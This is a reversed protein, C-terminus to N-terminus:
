GYKGVGREAKGEFCKGREKKTNVVVVIVWRAICQHLRRTLAVTGVEVPTLRVAGGGDM